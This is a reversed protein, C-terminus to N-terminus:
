VNIVFKNYITNEKLIVIKEYYSLLHFFNRQFGLLQSFITGTADSINALHNDELYHRLIGTLFNEKAFGKIYSQDIFEITM